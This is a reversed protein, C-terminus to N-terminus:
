IDKQRPSPDVRSNENPHLRKRFERRLEEVDNTAKEEDEWRIPVAKDLWLKLQADM